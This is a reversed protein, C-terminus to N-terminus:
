STDSYDVFLISQPQTEQDKMWNHQNYVHKSNWASSQQDGAFSADIDENRPLPNSDLKTNPNVKLKHHRRIRVARSTKLSARNPGGVGCVPRM